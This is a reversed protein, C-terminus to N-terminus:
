KKPGKTETEYEDLFADIEAQAKTKEHPTAIPGELTQKNFDIEKGDPGIAKFGFGRPRIIVEPIGAKRSVVLHDFECAFDRGAAENQKRLLVRYANARGNWTVAQAPTDFKLKVEGNLGAAEFVQHVDRYSLVSQSFRAM